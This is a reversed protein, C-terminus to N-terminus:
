LSLDVVVLSDFNELQFELPIHDSIEEIKEGIYIILNDILIKLDDSFLSIKERLSFFQEKIMSYTGCLALIMLAILQFMFIFFYEVIDFLCDIIKSFDDDQKIIFEQQKKKVQLWFLYRETIRQIMMLDNSLESLYGEHQNKRETKVNQNYSLFCFNRIMMDKKISDKLYLVRTRNKKEILNAFFLRVREKELSVFKFLKQEIYYIKEPMQNIRYFYRFALFRKVNNQINKVFESCYKVFSSFIKKVIFLALKIIKTFYTKIKEFFNLIKFFSIMYIM